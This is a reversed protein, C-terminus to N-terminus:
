SSHSWTPSSTPQLFSRSEATTSWNIAEKVCDPKLGLEQIKSRIAELSTSYTKLPRLVVMGDKFEVEFYRADPMQDMIKKLITIQIKATIKRLGPGAAIIPHQHAVAGMKHQPLHDMTAISAQSWSYISM